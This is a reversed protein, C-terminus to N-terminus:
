SRLTRPPRDLGGPARRGTDAVRAPAPPDDPLVTEVLAVDAAIGLAAHCWDCAQCTTTATGDDSSDAHCPPLAAGHQTSSADEVQVAAAASQAATPVGMAAVAWGRLPLLALMLWLIWTARRM